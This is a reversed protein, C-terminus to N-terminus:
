NVTGLTEAVAVDIRSDGPGGMGALRSFLFATGPVVVCLSKRAVGRTAGM